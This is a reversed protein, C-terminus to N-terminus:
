PAEAEEQLVNFKLNVIEYSESHLSIFLKHEKKYNFSPGLELYLKKEQVGIEIKMDSKKKGYKYRTHIYTLLKGLLGKHEGKIM